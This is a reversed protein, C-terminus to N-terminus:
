KVGKGIGMATGDVTRHHFHRFPLDFSFSFLM